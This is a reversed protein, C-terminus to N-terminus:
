GIERSEEHVTPKPRTKWRDHMWVWQEPYKRIYKEVIASWRETYKQVAEQKNGQTIEPTIPEELILRYHDGERIVFGPVIVTEAAMALKVPAVPTYATQGFFDVFVGEISDVDQDALMGLIQNAKLVKLIDKPSGDRYLTRVRVSERLKVVLQNYKEYYIRRGVVAGHYGMVGFSAALLEWNGIHATLIIVGKGEDLIRNIRSFEDEYHIWERLSEKTMKPFRIVDVATMALNQLVKRAIRRIEKETKEEKWALRLNRLIKKRQRAVLYFFCWGAFSAFCLAVKRPLGNVIWIGLRILYYLFIRRRRNKM